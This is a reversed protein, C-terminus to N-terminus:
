VVYCQDLVGSLLPLINICIDLLFCLFGRVRKSICWYLLMESLSCLVFVGVLLCSSSSIGYVLNFKRIAWQFVYFLRASLEKSSIYLM